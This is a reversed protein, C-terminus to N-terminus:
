SRTSPNNEFFFAFCKSRSFKNAQSEFVLLRRLLEHCANEVNIMGGKVRLAMSSVTIMLAADSIM